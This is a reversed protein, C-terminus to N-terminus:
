VWHNQVRLMRLASHVRVQSGQSPRQMCMYKAQLVRCSAKPARLPNFLHRSECLMKLFESQLQLRQVAKRFVEVAAIEAHDLAHSGAEIGVGLHARPLVEGDVEIEIHKSWQLSRKWRTFLFATSRVGQGLRPTSETM